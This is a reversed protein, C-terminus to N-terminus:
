IIWLYYIQKYTWNNIDKLAKTFASEVLNSIRSNQQHFLIKDEVQLSSIQCRKFSKLILFVLSFLM